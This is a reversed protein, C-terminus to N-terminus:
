GGTVGSCNNQMEQELPATDGQRVAAVLVDVHDRFSDTWFVGARYSQWEPIGLIASSAEASRAADGAAVAALWDAEWLCMANIEVWSRGGGASYASSGDAHLFSPWTAGAPLPVVAKAADIEAQFAASDVLGFPDETSQLAAGVVFVSPVVVLLVAVLLLSRKLPWRHRPTTSPQNGAFAAQLRRDLTARQASSMPETFAATLRQEMRETTM